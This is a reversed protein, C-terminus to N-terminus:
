RHLCHRDGSDNHTRVGSMDLHVRCLMIHYLKDTVQLLNHREGSVGTEEVLLVSRWSIVSIINFTVNFVVGLGSHVLGVRKIPDKYHLSVSVVCKYNSKPIALNSLWIIYFDEHALL